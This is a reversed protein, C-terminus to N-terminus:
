AATYGNDAILIHGTISKSMDSALFLVPGVMDIPYSGKNGLPHRAEFAKGREHELAPASMPTHVLGPALVNVRIGYKAVEVALSRALGHVGAKSACYHVNNFEVGNSVIGSISGILILSGKKKHEIFHGIAERAVNFTGKLNTDVVRTWESDPLSEFPHGGAVGACHVVIDYAHRTKDLFHFPAYLTAPDCVDVRYIAHYDRWSVARLTEDNIDVAVTNIGATMFALAIADGIGSAAGTILAWKNELDRLHFCTKDM